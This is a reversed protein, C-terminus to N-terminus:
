LIFNYSLKLILFSIKRRKYGQCCTEDQATGPSWLTKWFLEVIMLLNLKYRNFKYISKIYLLKPLLGSSLWCSFRIREICLRYWPNGSSARFIFNRDFCFYVDGNKWVLNRARSGKSILFKEFSSILVGRNTSTWIRWKYYSIFWKSLNTM